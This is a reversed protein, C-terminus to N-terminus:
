LNKETKIVITKEGNFFVDTRVKKKLIKKEVKENKKEKEEEEIFIIGSEEEKEFILEIKPYLKSRAKLEDLKKNYISLVFNKNPYVVNLIEDLSSSLAKLYYFFDIRLVGQHEKFYDYSEIKSWQKDKMISRLTNDWTIVYELRTGVSVPKGRRKMREALQIHAPLSRLYFEEPNDTNKDKLQKELKKPDSYDLANIKYDGVRCTKRIRKEGSKDVKETGTKDLVSETLMESINLGDTGKVSKTIVFKSIDIEGSFLSEIVSELEPHVNEEKEGHFIKLLFREYTERVFKSTDRRILVCGKKEVKDSVIGDKGCALSMYKKKAVILFVWYITEEFALTVYEPFHSSVDKAVELAHDWIESAPRDQMHPFNIYCSDTDGYVLKGNHKNQLIDATKMIYERGRATTCMAGPMLPLFGKQVGLAGYASNASVKYALQRKNYVVYLTELQSKEDESLSSDKLKDKVQKMQNKTEERKELLHTLLNPLIGIPSKLFRYRRDECMIHKSRTKREVTDLPCGCSIHDSWSFIHCDEDSISPDRIWIKEGGRTEWRDKVFTSWCINNARIVSPYLSSFDFPLVINHLGVIPDFVHAGTYHENVGVKYGDKEVVYGKNMCDKYVQSFVKIQQGQTYLVFIPVNCVKAMEVLGVWTQLKELLKVVLISDKMCYKGVIGMAKRAKQTYVIEGKEVSSSFDEKEMGIRYCKFIGKPSLDDKTDGIFYNSISKLSYTDMKYDRKVIPLLDIFLRGEANIYEFEQKGYASSSWNITELNAPVNKLFGMTQLERGCFLMKSRKLMYSIDFGFINYGTIINPNKENILDAFGELLDGECEYLLLSTDEGVVKPDPDGLSLLFKDEDKPYGARNFVCSIQFVRDGQRNYDPFTTPITSNVEIDFGLVLPPPVMALIKEEKENKPVFEFLNKYSVIYEKDCLTQQEEQDVKKGIFQIWGATPINRLSVLQLVENANNEHIKLKLKGISNVFIDNKIKYSFSRIDNKNSFTLFLFPFKKVKGKENINAYYLKKKMELSMHLPKKDGTISDIKSKLLNVKDENWIGNGTLESLEVYCFPTFDQVRVCINHKHENIGYIRMFTIDVEREDTHWSYAFFRSKIM